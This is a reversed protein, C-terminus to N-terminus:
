GAPAPLAELRAFAAALENAWPWTAQLKLQARRGHFALRAATHLMRYRLRKPEAKALQGDLLLTQSWTILDHAILVLYVWAQNM